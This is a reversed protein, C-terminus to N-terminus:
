CLLLASEHEDRGVCQDARRGFRRFPAWRRSPTLLDMCAEWYADLTGIDRWYFDPGAQEHVDYKSVTGTGSVMGPIIDRDFDHSGQPNGADSKLVDILARTDFVYIGMSTLACGPRFELSPPEAVGLDLAEQLLGQRCAITLDAGRRCRTWCM